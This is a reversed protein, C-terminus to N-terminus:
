GYSKSQNKNIIDANVKLNPVIFFIVIIICILKLFNKGRM